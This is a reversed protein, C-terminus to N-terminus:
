KLKGKGGLYQLLAVGLLFEVGLSVALHLIEAPGGSYVSHNIVIQFYFLFPLMLKVLCLSSFVLIKLTHQLLQLLHSCFDSHQPVCLYKLVFCKWVNKLSKYMHRVASSSSFVIFLRLAKSNSVVQVAKEKVAIQKTVGFLESFFLFVTTKLIYYRVVQHM